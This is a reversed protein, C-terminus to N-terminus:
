IRQLRSILDDKEVIPMQSSPPTEVQSSLSGNKKLVERIKIFTDYTSDQLEGRVNRAYLDAILSM